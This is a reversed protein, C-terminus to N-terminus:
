YRRRSVPEDSRGRSTSSGYERDNGYTPAIPRMGPSETGRPAPDGLPSSYGGLPASNGNSRYTEYREANHRQRAENTTELPRGQAYVASSAVLCLVVSASKIM